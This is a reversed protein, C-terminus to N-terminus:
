PAVGGLRGNGLPLAEQASLPTERRVVSHPQVREVTEGMTKAIGEELTQGALLCPPPM